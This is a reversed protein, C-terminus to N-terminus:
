GPSLVYSAAFDIVCAVGGPDNEPKKVQGRLLLQPTNAAVPAPSQFSVLVQSGTWSFPDGWGVGGSVVPQFTKTFVKGALSYGVAYYKEIFSIASFNANGTMKPHFTSNFERGVSFFQCQSTAKTVRLTGHFLTEASASSVLLMLGTVFVAAGRFM